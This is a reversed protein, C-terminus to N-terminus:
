SIGSCGMSKPLTPDLPLQIPVATDKARGRQKPQLLKLLELMNGLPSFLISLSRDDANLFILCKEKFSNTYGQSALHTKLSLHTSQSM